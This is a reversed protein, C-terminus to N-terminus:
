IDDIKWFDWCFLFFINECFIIQMYNKSIVKFDSIESIRTFIFGWNSALSPNILYRAVTAIVINAPGM